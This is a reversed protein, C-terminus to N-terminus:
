MTEKVVKRPKSQKAVYLKTDAETLCEDLSWDYEHGAFMEGISVTINYPKDSKLNFAAFAHKIDKVFSQGYDDGSYSLIFAFEDGSIRGIVGLDGINEKLVDAVTKIAFDGATYGFKDNIFKLSNVDVYAFLLDEKSSKINNLMDEAKSLFEDKNLIGTVVLDEQNIQEELAKNESELNATIQENLKMMSIIRAVSSLQHVVFDSQSFVEDTLDMVIFGYVFRDYFLPLVVMTDRDSPMYDNNYLDYIKVAQHSKPVRELSGDKVYAKIRIDDYPEFVDGIAHTIPNDYIYLYANKVNLWDLYSLMTGYSYDNGHYVKSTEKVFLRMKNNNAKTMDSYRSFDQAVARLVKRFFDQFVSQIIIEDDIGMNYVISSQMQELYTVLHDADAMNVADSNIFDVFASEIDKVIEETAHESKSADVMCTVLDVFKDYIRNKAEDEGSGRYRYFIYDFAEDVDMDAILKKGDSSQFEPRVKGMTDRIVLEAPLYTSEIKNGAMRHGLSKVAQRGIVTPDAAISALPPNARAGQITNDYGFVKIEEGPTLGLAKIEDCLDLASYDNCCFVAEVDPNDKLFQRCVEHNDDSLSVEAVSHKSIDIGRKLMYKMYANFRAVADTNGDPGKLIGFNQCECTDILYELGAIIGNENDYNVCEFGEYDSSVLVKPVEKFQALFDLMLSKDAYAGISGAAVILGSVNSENVYSFITNYQYDFPSPSNETVEREIYSGPLVLLNYNNEICALHVGKVLAETYSDNLGTVLLAVTLKDRNM